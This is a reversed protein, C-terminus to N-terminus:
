LTELAARVETVLLTPPTEYKDLYRENERLQPLLRGKVGADDVNTLFFVITSPWRRRIEPFLVAGTRTGYGTKLDDFDKAAPTPLGVDLILLAPALFTPDRLKGLFENVRDLVDFGSGFATCMAEVWPKVRELEDDLMLIM